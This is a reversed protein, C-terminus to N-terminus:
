LAVSAHHGGNLKVHLAAALFLAITYSLMGQGTADSHPWTGESLGDKADKERDFSSRKGPKSAGWTEALSQQGGTRLGKAGNEWGGNEKRGDKGFHESGAGM